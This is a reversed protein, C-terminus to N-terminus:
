PQDERTGRTVADARSGAAERAVTAAYADALVMIQEILWERRPHTRLM